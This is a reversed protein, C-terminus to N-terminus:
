GIHVGRNQESELAIEATRLAVDDEHEQEDLDQKEQKIAVGARDVQAKSTARFQEIELAKNQISQEASQQLQQMQQQMKQLQGSLQKITLAGDSGPDTYYRGAMAKNVVKVQDELLAYVNEPQVLPAYQPNSGLTMQNQFILNMQMMESDRSGNGLGVVVISDTRHRWSRPNAEVYSDALRFIETRSSHQVSLRHILHFLDKLGTEAFVRAILEIRQQAATMVQNVASAATNSGLASEDLGQTRESVGTRRERMYDVYQLMQFATGSLQPTDLRKVMGPAKTRVIGHTKSELLDEYNVMNEVVEYRGNNALYQNDLINRFLQTKIRQLDSVIDALSLGYFKHAIMIPSWSCFPMCSVEENELIKNGVMLVKRLEAIGDDNYDYRIYAEKVWHMKNAGSQWADGLDEDTDDYSHRARKEENLFAESNSSPLTDVMKRDYGMQVLQSSSMEREHACFRASSICTADTDIFFEEPPINEIVIGRGPSTVKVSLDYVMTPPKSRIQEIQQQLQQLKMQGQQQAQMLAQQVQPPMGQSAIQEQLQQMKQPLAAAAAEYQKEMKSVMLTTQEAEVPDAYESMEIIEINDPAVLQLMENETIGSYEEREERPADDYYGKVVGNKQLLGDTIWSYIIKFGPNKRHFVYNVYDTEQKAQEMDEPGVPEFRVTDGGGSFTKMLEPKIWEITDMVERTRINSKGAVENGYPEGYYRKMADARQQALKSSDTGAAMRMEQNVANALMRDSTGGQELSEEDQMLIQDMAIEDQESM